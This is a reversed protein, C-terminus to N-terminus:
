VRLDSPSRTRERANYSILTRAPLRFRVHLCRLPFVEEMVQLSCRNLIGGDTSDCRAEEEEFFRIFADAPTRSPDGLIGAAFHEGMEVPIELSTDGAWLTCWKVEVLDQTVVTLACEIDLELPTHGAQSVLNEFVEFFLRRTQELDRTLAKAALDRAQDPIVVEQQIQDRLLTREALHQLVSRLHEYRKWFEKEQFMRTLLIDDGM